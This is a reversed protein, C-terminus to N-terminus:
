AGHDPTKGSPAHYPRTVDKLTIELAEVDIAIAGDGALTLTIRGTGDEGPTWDLALASLITDTDARDIGQSAVKLADEITLVAQTRQPGDKSGREEWRFRNLLIAFRRRPRDWKMETIPFIADQVLASIVPVDEAELARLAVPADDGDEFRADTDKGATM